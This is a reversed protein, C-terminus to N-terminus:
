IYQNIMTAYSEDCDGEINIQTMFKKDLLLFYENILAKEFRFIYELLSSKYLDEEICITSINNYGEQLMKASIFEPTFIIETNEDVAQRCYEFNIGYFENYINREMNEKQMKVLALITTHIAFSKEAETVNMGSFLKFSRKDKNFLARLLLLSMAQGVICPSMIRKRPEKFDFAFNTIDYIVNCGTHASMRFIDYLETYLNIKENSTLYKNEYINKYIIEFYNGNYCYFTLYKLRNKEIYTYDNSLAFHQQLEIGTIVSSLGKLYNRVEHENNLDLIKNALDDFIENMKDYSVFINHYNVRNLIWSYYQLARTHNKHFILNELIEIFDNFISPAYPMDLHYEQFQKPINFLIRDILMKYMNLSKIYSINNDCILKLTEEKLNTLLKSDYNRPPIKNIIIKECERYYKAYLLNHYRKTTVFISGIKTILFILIYMALFFLLSIINANKEKIVLVINIIMAFYLVFMPIYFKFLKGGFLLDTAKEGLVHKNEISSVMSLIATTLFTGGIQAVVLDRYVDQYKVDLLKVFHRSSFNIDLVDLFMMLFLYAIMLLMISITTKVKYLKPTILHENLKFWKGYDWKIKKAFRNIRQIYKM